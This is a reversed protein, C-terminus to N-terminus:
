YGKGSQVVSCTKKKKKETGQGKAEVSNRIIDLVRNEKETM